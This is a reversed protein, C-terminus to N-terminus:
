WRVWCCAWYTPSPAPGEQQGAQPVPLNRSTRILSGPDGAAQAAAEPAVEASLSLAAEPM